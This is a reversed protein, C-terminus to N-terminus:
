VGAYPDHPEPPEEVPSDPAPAVLDTVPGPDPETKLVAPIGGLEELKNRVKSVLATGAVVYAVAAGTHETPVGFDGAFPIAVLAVALIGLAVDFGTRIARATSDKM